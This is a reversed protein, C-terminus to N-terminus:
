FLVTHTFGFKMPILNSSLLILIILSHSIWNSDFALNYNWVLLIVLKEVKTCTIDTNVYITDLFCM